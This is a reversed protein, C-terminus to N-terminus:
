QQSTNYNENSQLGMNKKKKKPHNNCAKYQPSTNYNGIENFLNM